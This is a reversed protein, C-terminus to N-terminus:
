MPNQQWPMHVPVFKGAALLHSAHDRKLETQVLFFNNFTNYIEASLKSSLELDLDPARYVSGIILSQSNKLKIKCFISETDKSSSIEECCLEKKVAILVGGGRTPRDRRFIDYDELLLESNKHGNKEDEEPSVLWTETGIIIDSRADSALNSLEVKKNWLSQFNIVLTKIGHISPPNKKSGKPPDKPTSASLPVPKSPPTQPLPPLKPQHDHEPSLPYFSNLSYDALNFTTSDFLASSFNPLGCRFCYWSVNKLNSYVNSNMLMCDKHYWIDCQDCAVAKQKWTCAKHCVGCPYRPTRPGPNLEINGSLLLIISLYTFNSINSSKSPFKQDFISFKSKSNFHYNKSTLLSYRSINTSLQRPNDLDFRNATPSTPRLTFYLFLLLLSTM